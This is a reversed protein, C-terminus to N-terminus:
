PGALFRDIARDARSPPASGRFRMLGRGTKRGSYESDSEVALCLAMALDDHGRHEPVAIRVTGSETTEFELAGLQRLLGPHRPFAIRGQQALMKLAGFANEKSAASTHVGEVRGAVRMRRLEQTPMQGVGNQESVLTGLRYRGEGGVECIRGIVDAYPVRVFEEVWPLWVLPKGDVLEDPDSALLVLASSDPSFGWDVGGGVALGDADEPAVLGYVGTAEALEEDSFYAGASEPWEAEVERRFERDSTTRRWQELLEEDVLPSVTSPWHFSEFGEEDHQGARWAVAFFGDSRGFPTSAMVVRSGPRAIITFRAATWLADEIWCAEDLVLLDVSQGRVQRESAPVSRITSGNTLTIQAKSEDVVSGALLRGSSLRACEGLLDRAASEGASLLLVRRDSSGFAEHLALVALTRSKGAQRGSCIVRHRAESRAVELQHPWLSEGLLTEAFVAVDVRARRVVDRPTDAM